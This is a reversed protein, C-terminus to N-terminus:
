DIILDQLTPLKTKQRVRRLFVLAIDSIGNSSDRKTALSQFEYKLQMNLM